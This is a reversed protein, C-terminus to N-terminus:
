PVPTFNMQKSLSVGSVNPICPPLLVVLIQPLQDPGDKPMASVHVHVHVDAGFYVPTSLRLYKGFSAHNVAKQRM